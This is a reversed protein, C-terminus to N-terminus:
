SQIKTIPDQITKEWIMTVYEEMLRNTTQTFGQNEFAKRVDTMHEYAIGSLIVTGGSHLRAIMDRALDLIIDGYINALVLDFRADSSLAEMTGCYVAINEHLGNLRANRACASAAELDIDYAIASEAGLLIAALALIGTGCGIDLIRLGDIGPLAELEDLCSITTEHLGSGFARARDLYLPIRDDVPDCNEPPCILFRQGIRLPHRSNQDL